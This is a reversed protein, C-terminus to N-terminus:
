FVPIQILIPLCGAIPNIQEKKYLEMMAQQQKAKDDAYRERIAVMEPQVAKMKAMSAYSKNALPFFFIKIIVTVLLIAVGFNGILHYIWDMAIFMPKTIFYFWGWDILRDFRDVGLTNKYGDVISVEKAGAFLRANAAATAGPAVTVPDLFYDAQFTKIAGAQGFLYRANIKTTPEPVLTTAWYKDTIGLWGQIDQFSISKKKELDAYTEEQLKDGLVGVLGEHLIYYGQLKPTGHRSVLAFAHLTVPAQSKNSVEDKITFM